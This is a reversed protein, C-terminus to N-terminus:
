KKTPGITKRLITSQFPRRDEGFQINKFYLIEFIDSLIDKLGEDTHFSFFRKPTYFDDEWIGEFDMGGYMGLYFLGGSRLVRRVNKLVLPFENKPLHLFSNLAFVADFSAQEFELNVMDM